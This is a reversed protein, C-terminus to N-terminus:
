TNKVAKIFPGFDTEGREVTYGSEELYELRWSDILSCAIAGRSGPKKSEKAIDEYETLSLKKGENDKPELVRWSIEPYRMSCCTALMLKPVNNKVADYIVGDTLGGCAHKAYIADIKGDEGMITKIKSQWDEGLSDGPNIDDLVSWQESRSSTGLQENRENAMDVLNQQYELGRWKLEPAIAQEHAFGSGPSVIPLNPDPNLSKLEDLFSIHSNVAKDAAKSTMRDIQEEALRAAEEEEFGEKVYKKKLREFHHGYIDKHYLPLLKKRYREPDVDEAVFHYEPLHTRNTKNTAVHDLKKAAFKIIDRLIHSENLYGEKHLYLYLSLLRQNIM